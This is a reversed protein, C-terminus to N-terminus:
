GAAGDGGRRALSHVEVEIGFQTNITLERFSMGIREAVARSRENGPEILSVVEDRELAGLATEACARAAETAIGRGRAAPALTWAIEVDDEVGLVSGPHLAGAWGLAVEDGRERVVYLGFGHDDWHELQQAFRDAIAEEDPERGHGIWDWVSPERWLATIAERDAERWRRLVLRPTELRDPLPM